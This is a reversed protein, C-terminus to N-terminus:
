TWPGRGGENKRATMRAGTTIQCDHFLARVGVRQRVRIWLRETLGTQLTQGVAAVGNLQPQTEGATMDAAAVGRRSLVRRLM